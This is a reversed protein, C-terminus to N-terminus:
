TSCRCMTSSYLCKGCFTKNLYCYHSHDGGKKDFDGYTTECFWKAIGHGCHQGHVHPDGRQQRLCICSGKTPHFNSGQIFPFAKPSLPSKLYGCVLSHIEKPLISDSELDLVMRSEETHYM